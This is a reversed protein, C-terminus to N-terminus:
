RSCAPHRLATTALSPSNPSSSARPEETVVAERTAAAVRSSQEQPPFNSGDRAVGEADISLAPPEDAAAPPPM